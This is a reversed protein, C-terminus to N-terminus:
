LADGWMKTNCKKEETVTPYIAAYRSVPGGPELGLHDQMKWVRIEALECYGISYINSMKLGRARESSKTHSGNFGRNYGTSYGTSLCSKLKRGFRFVDDNIICWINGRWYKLM